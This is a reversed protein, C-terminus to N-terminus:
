LTKVVDRFGRDVFCVDGRTLFGGLGASDELALEMIRADNLNATYPGLIEVVYGTTTCITFPKILHQKKQGSYSKRQYSSNASKGHRIYTGDYIM